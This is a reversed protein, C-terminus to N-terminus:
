LCLMDLHNAHFCTPFLFGNVCHDNRSHYYIVQVGREKFLVQLVLPCGPFGNQACSM